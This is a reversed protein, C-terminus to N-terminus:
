LEVCLSEVSSVVADMGVTVSDAVLTVVVVVVDDVVILSSVVCAVVLVSKCIELLGLKHLPKQSM